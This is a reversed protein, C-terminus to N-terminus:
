QENDQLKSIEFIQESYKSCLKWPITISYLCNYDGRSNWHKAAYTPKEEWIYLAGYADVTVFKATQLLPMKEGYLLEALNLSMQIIDKAWRQSGYYPETTAM